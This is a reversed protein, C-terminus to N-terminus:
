DMSKKTNRIAILDILKQNLQEQDKQSITEWKMNVAMQQQNEVV